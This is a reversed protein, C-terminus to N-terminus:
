VLQDALRGVFSRRRASALGILPETLSDNRTDVAICLRAEFAEVVFWCEDSKETMKFAEFEYM